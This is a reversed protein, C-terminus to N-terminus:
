LNGELIVNEHKQALKGIAVVINTVTELEFSRVVREAYKRKKGEGDV